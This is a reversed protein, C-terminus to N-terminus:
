ILTAAARGALGLGLLLVLGATATPAAASLRAALTAWRPPVTRAALRRRVRLLVLGAATLTAAMGLGYCVVLLVGFGTRGLGIAGLLVVLASPSPVLGGAIGIGAISWRTRARGHDHGHAHGHAHGHHHEHGHEHEHGHADHHHHRPGRRVALLMAAGVAVVLAGSALGLWGLVSEGALGAVSTLLLGLMLVAGTHTLTVTVGVGVADRWRGDRGALYAAMVTKGHGPLAAHAAGLMLALLVALLGVLPTLRTGGVIARLKGEAAGVWSSTAPATSLAASPAAAATGAGPHATLTASRVDLPSSLLDAPYARLEDSVSVTPLASDLAVGDGTAVMERWGIRDARFGNTVQAQAPRDLRAPASLACDLRSTHLGAAGPTYSFASSTVTWVLRDTGVTVAFSAAFARCTDAAYGEVGLSAIAGREQLTPLEAMDVVARVDVTSPTFTLAQFQNITFNGLPHILTAGLSAVLALTKM